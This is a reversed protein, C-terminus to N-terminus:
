DVKGKKAMQMHRIDGCEFRLIPIGHFQPYPNKITTYQQTYHKEIIDYRESDLVIYDPSEWDNDREYDDMMNAMETYIEGVTQRNEKHQITREVYEPDAQKYYLDEEEELDDEVWKIPRGSWSYSYLVNQYEKVEPFWDRRLREMQEETLEQKISITDDSWGMREWYVQKTGKLFERLESPDEHEIRLNNTPTISLKSPFVLSTTKSPEYKFDDMEKQTIWGENMMKRMFEERTYAGGRGGSRLFDDYKITTSGKYMGDKATNEKWGLATLMDEVNDYKNLDFSM